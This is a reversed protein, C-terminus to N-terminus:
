VFEPYGAVVVRNRGAAKAQYLAADALGISVDLEQGLVLEAMGFSATVQLAPPWDPRRTSALIACLRQVASFAQELEAHPLLLLFEEGGWRALVDEERLTNRLVHATHALVQDGMQHGFTDNIKKFHDLDLMVVVWLGGQRKQESLAAHARQLMSRRNLLGTLADSSALFNAADLAQALQTNLAELQNKQVLEHAHLDTVTQLLLENELQSVIGKRIQHHLSRAIYISLCALAGGGGALAWIFPEDLSPVLRLIMVSWFGAYFFVMANRLSAVTNLMLANIAVLSAILFVSPMSGVEGLPVMWVGLGWTAGAVGVAWECRGIAGAAVAQAYGQRQVRVCLSYSWFMGLSRVLVFALAMWVSVVNLQSVAVLVTGVASSRVIVKNHVVFVRLQEAAVASEKISLAPSIQTVNTLFYDVRSIVGCEGYRAGPADFTEHPAHGSLYRM